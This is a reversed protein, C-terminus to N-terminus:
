EQHFVKLFPSFAEWDIVSDLRPLRGGRKELKALRDQQDFFGPQIGDRGQRM